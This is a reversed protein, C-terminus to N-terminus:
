KGPAKEPAPITLVPCGAMTVVKGAVSGVMYRDWGSTGRTAMVILDVKEESAMRVIEDSPNGQIVKPSVSFERKFSKEALDALSNKAYNTLEGYYDQAKGASVSLPTLVHPPPVVHLLIIQCSYQSALEGAVKIGEQSPASFDTTCLIKKLPLM